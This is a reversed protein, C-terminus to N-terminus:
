RPSHWDAAAGKGEIKSRPGLTDEVKEEGEEMRSSLQLVRNLQTEGRFSVRRLFFIFLLM